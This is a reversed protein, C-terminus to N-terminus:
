ANPTPLTTRPIPDPTLLEGLVYLPLAAVLMVVLALTGAKIWRESLDDRSPGFAAFWRHTCFATLLAVLGPIFLWPAAPHPDPRFGLSALGSTPDPPWGTFAIISPIFWDFASLLIGVAFCV